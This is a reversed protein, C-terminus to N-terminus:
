NPHMQNQYTAMAAKLTNELLCSITMPGVGGPVPTIWAVKDKVQEFDVDGRIRGNPERHIGVDIVIQKEHFWDNPILDKSGAAIILLEAHRVHTELNKTARHCLTVTAKALLLELAMPRGVINSTGIVVTHLGHPNITYHELLKIIGYPTCPRFTPNGQALRGLNYPHFGDVDKSPSIREIIAQSSVHKPLPLQVLIGDILPNNNLSEICSILAKEDTETPLNYSITKFGAAKCAKHKHNVYIHSAPDDGLLIVALGPPRHGSAVHAQVTIKLAKLRKEALQKGNLLSATM